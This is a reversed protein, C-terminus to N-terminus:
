QNEAIITYHTGPLYVKTIMEINFGAPLGKYLSSFELLHLSKLRVPAPLDQPDIERTHRHKGSQWQLYLQGNVDVDLIKRIEETIVNDAVMRCEINEEWFPIFRHKEVPNFPNEIEVAYSKRTTPVVEGPTHLVRTIVGSGNKKILTIM